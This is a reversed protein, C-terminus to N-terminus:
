FLYRTILLAIGFMLLATFWTPTEEQTETRSHSATTAVSAAKPVVSATNSSLSRYTTLPPVEPCRNPVSAHVPAPAVPHQKAATVKKQENFEAREIATLPACTVRHHRHCAIYILYCPLSISARTIHFKFSFYFDYNNYIIM